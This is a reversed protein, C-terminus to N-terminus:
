KRCKKRTAAEELEYILKQRTTGNPFSAEEELRSKNNVWDM